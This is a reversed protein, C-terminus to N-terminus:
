WLARPWSRPFPTASRSASRPTSCLCCSPFCYRGGAPRVDRRAAGEWQASYNESPGLREPFGFFICDVADSSSSEAWSLRLQSDTQAPCLRGPWSGSHTLLNGERQTPPQAPFGVSSASSDRADASARCQGVAAGLPRTHFRLRVNEDQICNRELIHTHIYITIYNGWIETKVSYVASPQM